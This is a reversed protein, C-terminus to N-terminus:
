FNDKVALNNLLDLGRIFCLNKLFLLAIPPCQPNKLSDNYPSSIQQNRCLKFSYEEERLSLNLLDAIALHILSRM